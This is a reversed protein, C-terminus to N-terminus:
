PATVKVKKQFDFENLCPNSDFSWFLLEKKINEAKTTRIEYKRTFFLFGRRHAFIKKRSIPRDSHWFIWLKISIEYRFFNNLFFTSFFTLLMKEPSKLPNKLSFCNSPIVKKENQKKQIIGESRFDAYFEPNETVRISRNRSFIKARLPPKKVRFYSIRM